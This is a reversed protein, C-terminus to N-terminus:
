KYVARFTGHVPKGDAGIFQSGVRRASWNARVLSQLDEPLAIYGVEDALVGSKGILFDAFAQVQPKKLSATNAYYFLPRGLPTYTGDEVTAATPAVAGKGGDIAVATLSDKNELYYALGFFGIANKDQMVGRVLVNDEESVSMDGRMAGDKGLVVERFYDFTGSDTGPSFIKIPQDPWGARVDIWRAAGGDSYIKKLEDLTLSNCWTNDKNVVVSLGDFAIPVEIFEIGNKKALEAEGPKIARSAAALDIEGACFRKFGGGTGSMGVSVNVGPAAKKFEEAAAESILFVTSSGDLRVPGKAKALDVAAQPTALATLSLILTLPHM